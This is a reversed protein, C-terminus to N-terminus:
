QVCKALLVTEECKKIKGENFELNGVLVDGWAVKRKEKGRLDNISVNVL